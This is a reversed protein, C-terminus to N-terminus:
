DAETPQTFDTPMSRFGTRPDADFGCGYNPNALNGPSVMGDVWAKGDQEWLVRFFGFWGVQRYIIGQAGCRPCTRKDIPEGAEEIERDNAANM